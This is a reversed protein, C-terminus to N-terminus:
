TPKFRLRHQELLVDAEGSRGAQRLSDIGQIYAVENDPFAARMSAWVEAAATFDRARVLMMGLESMPRAEDPFHEIAKRLIVEAEATAGLERLSEAAELCSHMHLPFRQVLHKWREAAAPADGKAQASRALEAVPGPEMPFRVRADALLAEAEDHRGLHIMAQATGIYGALWDFRERVPQGRQLAREWDQRQVAVRAYGLYAIMEDPFQKVAQEALAEAAELRKKALLAEVGLVYGQVVGPFQRRLTSWREIATDYDGRALAVEGLGQAFYVDRPHSKHGQDMLAEAEDFRRLGLLVRLALPSERTEKPYRNLSETWRQTV